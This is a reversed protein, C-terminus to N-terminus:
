AYTLMQVEDSALRPVVGPALQQARTRRPLRCAACPSALREELLQQKIAAIRERSLHDINGLTVRQSRFYDCCCLVLDGSWSYADSFYLDSCWIRRSFDPLLSQSRALLNDIAHLEGARNWVVSGGRVDHIGRLAWFRHISMEDSRLHQTQLWQIALPVSFHRALGAVTEVNALCTDFDLKMAAEYERREIGWFSILLEDITQLLRELNVVHFRSANTILSVRLGSSRCQELLNLAGPHLLPEGGGAVILRPREGTLPHRYDAYLALIAALTTEGLWGFIPMDSRPCASCRANCTNTFEVEVQTSSPLSPLREILDHTMFEEGPPLM